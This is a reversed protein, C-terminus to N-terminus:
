VSELFKANYPLHKQIQETIYIINEDIAKTGDIRLVHCNLTQAWEEVGNETRASVMDFFAKEQEYLDGGQLMRDGFKQFSRNKIRELRIDKPVDILVAFKYYPLIEEGYNGKVAAFVFNEHEKIENILIAKAEEHPRPKSYDLQSQAISFFLNESDIFHFGLHEALSKGLTSKGSGNLGCVIIGFGM